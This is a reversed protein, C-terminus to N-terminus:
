LSAVIKELRPYRRIIGDFWRRQRAWDLKEFQWCIDWWKRAVSTRLEKRQEETFFRDTKAMAYAVPLNNYREVMARIVAKFLRNFEPPRSRPPMSPWREADESEVDLDWVGAEAESEVALEAAEEVAEEEDRYAEARSGMRWGRDLYSRIWMPIEAMPVENTICTQALFLQRDVDWTLEDLRLGAPGPAEDISKGCLAVEPVPLFPLDLTRTLTIGQGYEVMPPVFYLVLDLELTFTQKEM